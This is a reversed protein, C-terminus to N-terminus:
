PKEQHKFRNIYRDGWIGAACPYYVMKEGNIARKADAVSAYTFENEAARCPADEIEDASNDILITEIGFEDKATRITHGKYRVEKITTLRM